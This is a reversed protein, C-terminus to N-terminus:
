TIAPMRLECVGCHSYGSIEFWTPENCTACQTSLVVRMEAPTLTNWALLTTCALTAATRGNIRIRDLNGSVMPSQLWVLSPDHVAAEGVAAGRPVAVVVGADEHVYVPKAATPQPQQTARFVRSLLHSPYTPIETFLLDHLPEWSNNNINIIFSMNAASLLSTRKAPAKVKISGYDNDAKLDEEKREKKKGKDKVKKRCTARLAVNNLSIRVLALSHTRMGNIPNTM